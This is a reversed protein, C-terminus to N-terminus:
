EYEGITTVLIIFNKNFFKQNNPFYIDLGTATVDINVDCTYDSYLDECYLSYTQVPARVFPSDFNVHIATADTPIIIQKLLIIQLKFPLKIVKQGFTSDENTIIPEYNRDFIYKANGEKSLFAYNELLVNDKSLKQIHIGNANAGTYLYTNNIYTENDKAQLIKYKCSWYSNGAHESTKICTQGLSFVNERNLKAYNSDDVSAGTKIKFFKKVGDITKSFLGDCIIPDDYTGTGKAM